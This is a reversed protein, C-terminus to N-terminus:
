TILKPAADPRWRGLHIGERVHVTWQTYDPTHEWRDLLRPEPFDSSGSGDALGLFVQFWLDAGMPGM